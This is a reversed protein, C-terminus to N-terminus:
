SSTLTTHVSSVDRQFVLHFLLAIETTVRIAADRRPCLCVTASHALRPALTRFLRAQSCPVRPRTFQQLGRLSKLPIKPKPNVLHPRTVVLHLQDMDYELRRGENYYVSNFLIVVTTVREGEVVGRSGCGRLLLLLLLLGEVHARGRSQRIARKSAQTFM